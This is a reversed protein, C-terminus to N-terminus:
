NPTAHFSSALDLLWAECSKESSVTLVDGDSDSDDQKKAIMVSATGGGKKLEPCEAKKHRWGKCKYCQPEKKKRNGKKSMHGHWRTSWEPSWTSWKALRRPSRVSRESCVLVEGVEGSFELDEVGILAKIPSIM